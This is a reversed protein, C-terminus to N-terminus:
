FLVSQIDHPTQPLSNPDKLGKVVCNECYAITFANSNVVGYRDIMDSTVVLLFRGNRAVLYSQFFYQSESFQSMDVFNLDPWRARLEDLTKCSCDRVCIVDGLFEPSLSRDSSSSFRSFLRDPAGDVSLAPTPNIECISGKTDAWPKTIDSSIYDIGAVDLGFLAACDIALEKINNHCTETVEEHEGGTSVNANSRLAVTRGLEPISDFNLGQKELMSIIDTTDASIDNFHKYFPHASRWQIKRDLLERITEEGDGIISFPKRHTVGMVKGDVVLLRFDDGAVHEQLIVQGYKRAAIFAASIEEDKKLNTYVALGRDTNNPKIVISQFRERKLIQTAELASSIVFTKPTPMAALSLMESTVIKSTSLQSSIVSTRDTFQRLVCIKMGGSNRIIYNPVQSSTRIIDFGARRAPELFGNEKSYPPHAQFGFRGVSVTSSSFGGEQAIAESRIMASLASNFLWASAPCLAESKLSRGSFYAARIDHGLTFRRVLESLVECGPEIAFTTRLRAELSNWAAYTEEPLLYEVEALFYSQRHHWTVRM